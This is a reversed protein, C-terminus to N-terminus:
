EGPQLVGDAPSGTATELDGSGDEAASRDRRARAAELLAMIRSAREADTIGVDDIELPGGNEGTVAVASKQKYIGTIEFVMKREATGAPTPTSAVAISADIMDRLNRYFPEAKLRAVRDDITPDNERWKQITRDNKLGLVDTALKGQTGPQRDKIPSAAWSIYVAKRWDWGEGRLMLFDDWWAPHQDAESLAKYANRSEAQGPTSESAPFATTEDDLVAVNGQDMEFGSFGSRRKKLSAKAQRM